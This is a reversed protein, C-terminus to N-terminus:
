MMPIKSVFSTLTDHPTSPLAILKVGVFLKGSALLIADKEIRYRRNHAHSYIHREYSLALEVPTFRRNVRHVRRIEARHDFVRPHDRIVILDAIEYVQVVKRQDDVVAVFCYCEETNRIVLRNAFHKVLIDLSLQNQEVVLIAGIVIINQVLEIICGFEEKAFHVEDFRFNGM